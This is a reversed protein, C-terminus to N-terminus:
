EIDLYMRDNFEYVVSDETRALQLLMEDRSKSERVGDDLDFLYFVGDFEFYVFVKRDGTTIHVLVKASPNGLAIFVSCLLTSKDMVDGAGFSLTEGPTLWFELPMAITSIDTKVFGFATVAAEYFDNRYTYEGFQLRISEAKKVVGEDKPNVLMPLEAVSIHEREEIYEKYRSIIALYIQNLKRERELEEGKMEEWAM